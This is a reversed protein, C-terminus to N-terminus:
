ELALEVDAIGPGADRAVVTVGPTEGDSVISVTIEGRRAFRVINRAIESIATAVVTAETSSFGAQLALSNGRQRAAVIDPDAKVVIRAEDSEEKSRRDFLPDSLTACFDCSLLHYGADLEAQRRRDGASFALLVPRCSPSPPAGGIELLYEVRLKARSRNLLAAVAGPTSGLDEALSSTAQGEIEHAVLLERERPALRELAARVADAEERELLTEDPGVPDRRDLLRHEHRKGTDVRRWQSAVLNRATVIAYPGLASRDLRGRAAFLRALTEQVIDDVTDRDRIRRAVVRRVLATLEIFDSTSADHSPEGWSM